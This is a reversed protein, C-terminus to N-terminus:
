ELAYLKFNDFYYHAPNNGPGAYCTLTINGSSFSDDTVTDLIYGNVYVEIQTGKCSVKLRNVVTNGGMWIYDSFTSKKLFSDIGDLRKGIEYRGNGVDILFSYWGDTDSPEGNQQRFLLGGKSRKEPSLKRVDVEVIFDGPRGILTNTSSAVRSISKALLSFEGNDYVVECAEDSYVLWGSDPDSFDDEFLLKHTCRTPNQYFTDCAVLSGALVLCLGALLIPLSRCKKM